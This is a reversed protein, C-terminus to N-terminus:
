RDPEADVLWVYIGKVGDRVDSRTRVKKGDRRFLSAYGGSVKTGSAGPLWLVYGARLAAARNNTGRPSAKIAKITEPDKIVEFEDSM